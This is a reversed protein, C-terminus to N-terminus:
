SPARGQKLANEILQLQQEVWTALRSDEPIHAAQKRIASLSRHISKPQNAEPKKSQERLLREVDVRSLGEREIRELWERRASSSEVNQLVLAVSYELRNGRVAEILDEPLKLIRLHFRYFTSLKIDFQELIEDIVETLNDAPPNNRYRAAIHKTVGDVDSETRMVMLRLIGEVRDVDNLDERLLNEVLQLELAVEAPLDDRVVVPIDDFGAKLSARYRREGAVIRYGNGHRQVLIPQLVGREAISQEFARQSSAAFSRRPQNPDPEIENLPIRGTSRRTIEGLRAAVGIETQKAAAQLRNLKSM